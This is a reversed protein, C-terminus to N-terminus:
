IQSAGTAARDPRNNKKGGAETPLPIAWFSGDGKENWTDWFYQTNAESPGVM